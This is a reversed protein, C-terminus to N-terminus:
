PQIEFSFDSTDCGLGKGSDGILDVKVKCATATTKLAPIQWDFHGPNNGKIKGNKVGKWSKGGNTSYFLEVRKLPGRNQHTEWQITWTTGSKLVEGGNPSTLKIVEITFPATSTDAAIRNGSADYGIVRLLCKSRNGALKPVQWSYSRETIGKDVLTWTKGGNMSLLLKFNEAEPPAEWRITYSSGSPLVEGGNPTLLTVFTSPTQSSSTRVSTLLM